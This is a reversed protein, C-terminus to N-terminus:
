KKKSVFTAALHRLLFSFFIGVSVIGGSDDIDTNLQFIHDRNIVVLVNFVVFIMNSSCYTSIPYTSSTRILNLQM